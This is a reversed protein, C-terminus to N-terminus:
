ADDGDKILFMDSDACGLAIATVGLYHAYFFRRVPRRKEEDDRRVCPGM